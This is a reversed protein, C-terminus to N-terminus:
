VKGAKSQDVKAGGSSSKAQVQTGDPASVDISVDVAQKATREVDAKAKVLAAAVFPRSTEGGPLVLVYDAPRPDTGVDLWHGIGSLMVDGTAHVAAAGAVLVAAAM